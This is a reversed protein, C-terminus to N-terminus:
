DPFYVKNPNPLDYETIDLSDLYGSLGLDYLEQYGKKDGSDWLANLKKYYSSKEKANRDVPLKKDDFRSSDAWDFSEVIKYGAKRVIQKAERITM